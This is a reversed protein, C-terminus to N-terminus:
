KTYNDCFKVQERSSSYCCANPMYKSLTGIGKLIINLQLHSKNARLEFPLTSEEYSTPVLMHKLLPITQPMPVSLYFSRDRRLPANTCM